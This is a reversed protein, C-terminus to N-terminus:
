VYMDDYNVSKTLSAYMIYLPPSYEDFCCVFIFSIMILFVISWKCCEITGVQAFSQITEDDVSSIQACIRSGIDDASPLYFGTNVGKIEDFAGTETCRFWKLMIVGEDQATGVMRNSSVAAIVDSQYVGGQISFGSILASVESM